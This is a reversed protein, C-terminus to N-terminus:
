IKKKMSAVKKIITARLTETETTNKIETASDKMNM